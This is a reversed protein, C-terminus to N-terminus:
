ESLDTGSGGGMEGEPQDRWICIIMSPMGTGIHMLEQHNRQKGYAVGQMGWVINIAGATAQFHYRM